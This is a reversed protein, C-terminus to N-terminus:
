NENKRLPKFIVIFIVAIYSFVEILPFSSLVVIRKRILEVVTNTDFTGSYLLGIIKYDLLALYLEFPATIIVIMLIIFLWGENKIEIKSYFIYLFFLLLFFLYSILNIVLIPLITELVDTINQLNYLNKLELNIPEFLQYVILQRSIYSGLWVAFSIVCLSLLTRPLINKKM